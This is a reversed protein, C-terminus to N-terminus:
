PDEEDPPGARSGAADDTLSSTWVSGALPDLTRLHDIPFPFPLQESEM